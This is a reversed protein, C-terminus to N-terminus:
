HAVLSSNYQVRFIPGQRGQTIQTIHTNQTCKIIYSYWCSRNGSARLEATGQWATHCLLHYLGVMVTCIM